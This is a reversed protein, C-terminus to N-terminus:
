HLPDAAEARDLGLLHHAPEPHAARGRVPPQAHADLRLQERMHPHQVALRTQVDRRAGTQLPRAQTVELGAPHADRQDPMHLRAGPRRHHQREALRPHTHHVLALDARRLAHLAPHQRAHRDPRQALLARTPM